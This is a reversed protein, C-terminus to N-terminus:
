KIESYRECFDDFDREATRILGNIGTPYQGEDYQFGIVIYPKGNEDSQVNIDTVTITKQASKYQKGIEIKM